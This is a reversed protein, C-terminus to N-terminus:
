VPLDFHQISSVRLARGSVLLGTQINGGSVQRTFDQQGGKEVTMSVQHDGAHAKCLEIYTTHSKGFELGGQDSELFGIGGGFDQKAFAEARVLEVNFRVAFVKIFHYGVDGQENICRGDM